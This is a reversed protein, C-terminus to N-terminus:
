RRRYDTMLRDRDAAPLHKVAERITVGSV